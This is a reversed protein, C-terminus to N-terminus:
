KRRIINLSDKKIFIGNNTRTAIFPLITNHSLVIPFFLYNIENPISNFITHIYDIDASSLEHQNTPHSHFIGSFIINNSNWNRITTNILSVDPIYIANLEKNLGRDHVVECIIGQKSGIIGGTEPPIVPCNLMNEYCDFFIKMTNLFFFGM